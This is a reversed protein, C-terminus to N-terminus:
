EGATGTTYQRLGEPLVPNILLAELSRNIERWFPYNEAQLIYGRRSEARLEGYVGGPNLPPILDEAPLQRTDPDYLHYQIEPYLLYRLLDRSVPDANVPGLAVPYVRPAPPSTMGPLCPLSAQRGTEKRHEEEPFYATGPDSASLDTRYGIVGCRLFEGYIEATKLLAEETPNQLPASPTDGRVSELIGLFLGPHHLKGAPLILRDPGNSGEPVLIGQIRYAVIGEGPIEEPPTLSTLTFDPLIDGTMRRHIIEDRIRTREEYVLEIKHLSAWVPLLRPFGSLGPEAWITLAAVESPKGTLYIQRPSTYVDEESRLRWEGDGSRELVTRDLVEELRNGELLVEGSPIRILITDWRSMLPLIERLPIGTRSGRAATMNLDDLQNDPYHNWLDGNLYIDLAPLCPAILIWIFFLFSGKSM